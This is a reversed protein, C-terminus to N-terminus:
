FWFLQIFYIVTSHVCTIVFAYLLNWRLIIKFVNEKLLNSIVTIVPTIPSVTTSVAWSSLLMMAMTIVHIGLQEYSVTAIIASITVIQHIGLFSLVAIIAITFFILLFISTDALKGWWANFYNAITTKSLVVGFFGATLLLSIENARTSLIDKRYRRVEQVFRKPIRLYMSWLLAFVLVILSILVSANLPIFPEFLFIFGTLLLLVAFLEYIKRPNKSVGNEIDPIAVHKMEVTRFIVFATLIQFASLIFGYPLFQHIPIQLSYVVLFVSAFYPAWTHVSTFGRVYVRGLLNNPLHLKGLMSHIIYLSGVNTIPGLLSFLGSIFLYLMHPKKSFRATFQALHEHYNGLGIPIGLIPVLMILVVLPLNKNIGEIWIDVPVQKYLLVVSGVIVMITGFIKPLGESYILSLIIVLSSLIMYIISGYAFPILQGIIFFLILVIVLLNSIKKM